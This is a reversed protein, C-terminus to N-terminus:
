AGGPSPASKGTRSRRKRSVPTKKGRSASGSTKKTGGTKKKAATSAAKKKKTTKKKATKSKKSKASKSSARRTRKAPARAKKESGATAQAELPPEDVAPEAWNLIDDVTQEIEEEEVEFPVHSWDLSFPHRHWTMREPTPEIGPLLERIREILAQEEVPKELCADSGTDPIKHRRGNTLTALLIVPTALGIETEKIKRCVEFGHMKPILDQVLVLDPQLEHFMRLGKAGDLALHVQLGLSQLV